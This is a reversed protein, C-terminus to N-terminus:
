VVIADLMVNPCNYVLVPSSILQPSVPMPLTTAFEQVQVDVDVQNETTVASPGVITSAVLQLRCKWHFICSSLRRDSQSQFDEWCQLDHEPWLDM